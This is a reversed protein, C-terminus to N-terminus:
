IFQLYFLMVMQLEVFENWSILSSSSNNESQNSHFTYLGFFYFYHAKHLVSKLSQITRWEINKEPLMLVCKFLAMWIKPFSSVQARLTANFQQTSLTLHSEDIFISTSKVDTLLKDTRLTIVDQLHILDQGIIDSFIWEQSPRIIDENDPLKEVHPLSTLSPFKTTVLISDLSSRIM